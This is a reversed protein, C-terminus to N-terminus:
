VLRIKGSLLEEMMGQKIKKYKECTRQHLTISHHISQFLKGIADQENKNPAIRMNLDLFRKKPINHMSGSTGSSMSCIVNKYEPSILMTYIFYSNINEQLTLQWLRDPLFLNDYDETVYGCAGVREPTNMRSVIICKKRVSCKVLNRENAVVCKNESPNFVDYSVCSTKLIGIEGDHVPYDESNVSKGASLNAVIDGM